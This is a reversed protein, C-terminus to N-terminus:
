GLAAHQNERWAAPACRSHVLLLGRREALELEDALITEREGDHEVVVVPDYTDVIEGCRLCVPGPESM